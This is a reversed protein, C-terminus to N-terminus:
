IVVVVILIYFIKDGLLKRNSRQCGTIQHIDRYKQRRWFTTYISDHLIYGLSDREKGKACRKQSDDTTPCADTIQEMKNGFLIDNNSHLM